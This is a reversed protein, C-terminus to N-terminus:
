HTIFAKTGRIVYGHNVSLCILKLATYFPQHSLDGTFLSKGIEKNEMVIDIGYAEQLLSFVRTVPTAKFVLDRGANVIRPSDVLTAHLMNSNGGTTYVAQQNPTLVVGTNEHEPMYVEVKGTRVAVKLEGLPEGWHRWDMSFSTGLVHTILGGSRAYFPRQPDTAITFFASGELQVERRSDSFHEPYSLKSGPQLEITSGDELNIPLIGNGNNAAVLSYSGSGASHMTHTRYLFTVSALVILSAAAAVWPWRKRRPLPVVPVGESGLINDIIRQQTGSSLSHGAPPPNRLRALIEDGLIDRYAGSRLVDLFDEREEPTLTDELHGKLLRIFYEPDQM